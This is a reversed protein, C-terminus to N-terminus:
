GSGVCGSCVKLSSGSGNGGALEAYADAAATRGRNKAVIPAIERKVEQLHQTNWFAVKLLRRQLGSLHNKQVLLASPTHSSCSPTLSM